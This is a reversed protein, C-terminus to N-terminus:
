NLGRCGWLRAESPAVILNSPLGLPRMHLSVGRNRSRNHLGPAGVNSLVLLFYGEAGHVVCDRRVTVAVM